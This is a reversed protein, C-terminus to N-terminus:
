KEEFGRPIPIEITRLGAGADLDADTLGPYSANIEDRKVGPALDDMSRRAAARELLSHLDM